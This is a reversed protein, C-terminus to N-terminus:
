MAPRPGAVKRTFRPFLDDILYGYVLSALLGLALSLSVFLTGYQLESVSFPSEVARLVIGFM